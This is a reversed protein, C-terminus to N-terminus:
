LAQIILNCVRKAGDFDYRDSIEEHISRRVNTDFLLAHLAEVDLELSDTSFIGIAQRNATAYQFNAIQNEVIAALGVIKQSALLDWLTTGSASIATDCDKAISDFGSGFSHFHFSNVGRPIHEYEGIFEVAIDRFKKKGLEAILQDFVSKNVLGGTTVLVRKAQDSVNNNHKSIYRKPLYEIGHAIVRSEISSDAYPFPLDVFIVLSNALLPTYRDAIQLVASNSFISNVQQCFVEDYSDLVVFDNGGHETYFDIKPFTEEFLERVWPIEVSGFFAREISAPLAKAIEVLRRFHGAGSSESVRTAFVVRKPLM